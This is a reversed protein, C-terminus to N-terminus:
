EGRWVWPPMPDPHQWLGADEQRALREYHALDTREPAYENFHWAYGQRVLEANVEWGSTFVTAVARGYFDREQVHVTLYTGRIMWALANKAAIGYPQTKEPADVGYLRVRLTGGSSRALVFTDGDVIREPTGEYTQGRACRVFSLVFLLLLGVLVTPILPQSKRRHYPM